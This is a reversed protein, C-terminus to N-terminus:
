TVHYCDKKGSIFLDFWFCLMVIVENVQYKFSSSVTDTTEACANVLLYVEVIEDMLWAIACAIMNGGVNSVRASFVVYLYYSQFLIDYLSTAVSLLIQFQFSTNLLRGVSCLKYHLRCLIYLQETVKRIGHLHVPDAHRKNANRFFSRISRCNIIGRHKKKM